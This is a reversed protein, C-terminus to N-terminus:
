GRVCRAFNYIRLVDGQPGAGKPLRSEDGSKPSSRQAGAGHVDTLKLNATNTQGGMMGPPPGGRGGGPLGGMMGGGGLHGQATGFALYVAFAGPGPGDLHTTSSWFFPWERKGDDDQIASIDFIPDLAASQTASPSRGYDVISHLEKANPLRWDDHGAFALAECYALAQGWDLGRGSDAKTWTLGTARDIVTGDGKDMFDNKGYALNGRVYRAYWLRGGPGGDQPYAKIRGDAFNVGFFSRDRGMTLGLYATGAVYQADIFRGQSPYEFNFHRSDIYPKADAPAGQTEPRAHGTAGQFNMLSYLEKITPVRWDAHGGTRSGAAQASAGAFSTKHFGKEWMLGTVLDSVTGDGNDRYSPQDGQYQADQGYFARGPQPCGTRGRDDYCQSQGSDVLPYAPEAAWAGPLVLGFCFASMCIRIMM